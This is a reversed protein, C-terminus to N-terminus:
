AVSFAWRGLHQLVTKNKHNLTKTSARLHFVITQKEESCFQLSYFQEKSYFYMLAVAPSSHSVPSCSTVARSFKETWLAFSNHDRILHQHKHQNKKKVKRGWVGLLEVLLFHVSSTESVAGKWAQNKKKKFKQSKATELLLATLTQM